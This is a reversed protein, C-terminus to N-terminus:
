LGFQSPDFGEPMKGESADVLGDVIKDLLNQVKGGILMRTVMNFDASFEIHFDTAGSRDSVPDFHLRAYFGFPAGYDVLEIKSYPTREYVKVGLSMGNYTATLTDYDATVADQKDQPLMRKFNSMDAFAMFLEYPSKSVLGHKSKYESAM